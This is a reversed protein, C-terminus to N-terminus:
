RGVRRGAGRLAPPLSLHDPNSGFIWTVRAHLRFQNWDFSAADPRQRDEFYQAGTLGFQLRDSMRIAADIGLAEVQSDSYRLELPRFFTSGFAALTLTQSPVWTVRGDWARAAAGFGYDQHFGGEITLARTAQLSASVSARWGDDQYTAQATEAGTNDFWYREGSAQVRLRSVPTVALSGDVATYPTPTFAGWITWLPFFPRYRRVGGDASLFSSGYRVFLESSGWWGSGIDYDAAGNVTVQRLPRLIAVFAARESIFYDVSPDVERRYEARLEAPQSRWGLIAGATLHRQPLQYENLPNLVPSTVPVDLSRALGWGGYGTLELGQRVLRGTVAAGDFGTWGFRGTVQQRGLRATLGATAYEAYGELLQLAPETGPFLRDSSLDTGWRANARLSLGPLGLGWVTLDAITVLPQSELRPGPRFYQCYSIGPRCDVAFGDPTQSGGFSGTVAREPPGFRSRTLVATTSIGDFLRGRWQVQRQAVTLAMAAAGDALRHPACV